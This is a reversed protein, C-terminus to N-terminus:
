NPLLPKEIEVIRQNQGTEKVLGTRESMCFSLCLQLKILFGYVRLNRLHKKTALARADEGQMKRTCRFLISGDTM